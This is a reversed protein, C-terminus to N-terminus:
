STSKPEQKHSLFLEKFRKKTDEDEIHIGLNELEELSIKQLKKKISPEIEKNIWQYLSKENITTDVVKGNVITKVPTGYIGLIYAAAFKKIENQTNKIIQEQLEQKIKLHNMEEKQKKMQNQIEKTMDIPINYIFLHKVGKAYEKDLEEDSYDEYARDLASRQNMFYKAWDGNYKGFQTRFFRRLAHTGMKRRNTQSDKDGYGAKDLLRNWIDITTGKSIPFLLDTDIKKNQSKNNRAQSSKIYNKRVRLYEYVAKKAESSMRKKSPKKNKSHTHQITFRPNEHEFDIDKIKVTLIEQIRCGSTAQMLFMARSRENGHHLIKALDENTPTWKETIPANSRKKALKKWFGRGLDIHHHEMLNRTINICQTITGPAPPKTKNDTHTLLHNQYNRVDREYTNLLHYKKKQDTILRTDQLYDDPNKIKHYIFFKPLLSEYTHQTNKNTQSDLFDQIKQSKKCSKIIHLEQGTPLKKRAM